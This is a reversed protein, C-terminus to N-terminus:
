SLMSKRDVGADKWDAPMIAISNGASLFLNMIYRGCMPRNALKRRRCPRARWHMQGDATTVKPQKWQSYGVSRDMANMALPSWGHKVNVGPLDIDVLRTHVLDRPPCFEPM